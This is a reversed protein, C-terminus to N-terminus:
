VMWMSTAVPKTRLFSSSTSASSLRMSLRSSAYVDIMPLAGHQLHGEAIRLRHKADLRMLFGVLDSVGRRTGVQVTEDVKPKQLADARLAGKLEGHGGAKALQQRARSTCECLFRGTM